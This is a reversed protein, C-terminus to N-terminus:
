RVRYCPKVQENTGMQACKRRSEANQAAKPRKRVWEARIEGTETNMFTLPELDETAMMTESWLGLRREFDERTYIFREAKM